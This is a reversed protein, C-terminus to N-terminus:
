SLLKVIAHVAAIVGAIPLGLLLIALPLAWVIVLLWALDSLISSLPRM